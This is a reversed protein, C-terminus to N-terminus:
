SSMSLDENSRDKTLRDKSRYLQENSSDRNMHGSKAAEKNQAKQKSEKEKSKSVYDSSQNPRNLQIDDMQAQHKKELIM